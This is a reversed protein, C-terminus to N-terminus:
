REMEVMWVDAETISVSFYIHRDDPSVAFGRRAVEDPAISLVEKSAGTETNVIHIGGKDHFLLRKGDGLWVPDSGHKTVPRFTRTAVDYLVVGDDRNLFGALTKGDPSWSWGNFLQGQQAYAPLKEPTQSAWEKAADILFTNFGFITYALRKGDSSWVPWAVNQGGLKTVQRSEGSDVTLSWIEWDGSRRSFYAIKKGDPSWRPGRNRHSGNTAQRLGSGDAGIVFLHEETETTNFALWKGDPSLAPRAAGQASNLIVKPESRVSELDPEFRVTLLKGTNLMQAYALRKGNGSFSLHAPYNSPTRVLEPAGRAEGTSERMPVRWIAMAGGRTSCFYLWAGDPSWVPNWDVFHDRTLRIPTGGDAPITYLDRDGDLDIAWYAIFRGSPSWDPQVADEKTLLRKKGSSVEISWLQSVRGSRDEPRSISEEAFVIRKGDPSWAPNFGAESVRQAGSGDLRMTFIGGGQRESRFAIQRGDPSWAPQTDDDGANQTLNQSDSSGVRRVYIDYNGAVKSTYVIQAGDPSLSPFLEAGADDTVPAFVRGEVSPLPERMSLLYRGALVGVILSAAAAAMWPAMVRWRPPGAPVIAGALTASAELAFGIDQASQFRDGANKELCHLILSEVGPPIQKGGETMPRPESTLIANMTEVASAGSFADRGTLMKYLVAGFSFIDSRWDVQEGRAQEPSMYSPTGALDGELTLTGIGSMGLRSKRALGFDLLKVLGERTIMINGPKLDRHVIGAAHAGALAAAIQIAYALAQKPPLGTEPICEDLPRGDIHEMAIYDIERDSGVDHITVVNPHILGSAARAERILRQRRSPDNVQEPRLLKLAIRRDLRTDWARYVVGMGGQGILTDVRYPGLMEGKSIETAPKRGTLSGLLANEMPAREAELLREVEARLAVDSGCRDALFHARQEEPLDLAAGFVEKLRSWREPSM